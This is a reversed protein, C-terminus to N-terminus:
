IHLLYAAYAVRSGRHKNGIPREERRSAGSCRRRLGDVPGPQHAEAPLARRRWGGCRMLAHLCRYGFRRRVMTPDRLKRRLESSGGAELVFAQIVGVGQVEGVVAFLDLLQPLIVILLTRV